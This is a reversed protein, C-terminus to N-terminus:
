RASQDIRKLLEAMDDPVGPDGLYAKGLVHGIAQTASPRPVQVSGEFRRDPAPPSTFSSSMDM